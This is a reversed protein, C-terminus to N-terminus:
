TDATTSSTAASVACPRPRPSAAATARVVTDVLRDEGFFGGAPSRAETVGDTHILIRDGPELQFREVPPASNPHSPGPGLGLGLPLNPHRAM